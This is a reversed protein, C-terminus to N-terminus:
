GRRNPVPSPEIFFPVWLIEQTPCWLMKILILGVFRDTKHTMKDFSKAPVWCHKYAEFDM